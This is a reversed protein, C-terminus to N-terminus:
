GPAALNNVVHLFAGPWLSGTAARLAGAVLGVALVTAIGVLGPRLDLLVWGPVHAATFLLAQVIVAPAARGGLAYRLREQLVGRFLLEAALPLLVASVTPPPFAADTLQVAVLTAAGAAAGILLVRWSVPWAGTRRIWSPGFCLRAYLAPLVGWLVLKLVAWWPGGGLDNWLSAVSLTWLGFFLALFVALDALVAGQTRQPPRPAQPDSM